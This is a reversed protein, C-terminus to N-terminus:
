GWHYASVDNGVLGPGTGENDNRDRTNERSFCDMVWGRILPPVYPHPLPANYIAVKDAWETMGPIRLIEVDWTNGAPSSPDEKVSRIIGIVTM